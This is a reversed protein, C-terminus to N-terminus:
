LQPLSALVDKMILDSLESFILVNSSLHGVESTPFRLLFTRIRVESTRRRVTFSPTGVESANIDFCFPRIDAGLARFESSM